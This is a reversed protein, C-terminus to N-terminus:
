GAECFNLAKHSVEFDFIIDIGPSQEDNIIHGVPVRTEQGFPSCIM